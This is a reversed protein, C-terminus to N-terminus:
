RIFPILHVIAKKINDSSQGAVHLGDFLGRAMPIIRKLKGKRLMDVIRLLLKMYNAILYYSRFHKKYFLLGNYMDYYDSRPRCTESSAGQKHYIISKPESGLRYHSRKIRVSWDCDEYYFFFREDLLGVKKLVDSRLFFSSGAIYDLTFDKKIRDFIGNSGRHRAIGLLLLFEGGGDVQIRQPQDYYYHRSGIAGLSPDHSAKNVLAELADPAMVTDNNLLWVYKADNKSLVHRLGVNNGGAFGLNSGTRILVLPAKDTDKWGGAEAQSRDYELYPIPKAVPPYSLHRLPNEPAVAANLGGEAWAKIKELSGDQSDNDCVIVTYNPYNNRFVSELCEITDKWRNWNLIIIYIM